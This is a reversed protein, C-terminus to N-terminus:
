LHLCFKLSSLDLFTEKILVRKLLTPPHNKNKSSTVEFGTKGHYVVILKTCPECKEQEQLIM